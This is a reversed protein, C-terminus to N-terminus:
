ADKGPTENAGHKAETCFFFFFFVDEEEQRSVFKLQPIGGWSLKRHTFSDSLVPSTPPSPWSAKSRQPRTCAPSNQHALFGLPTPMGQVPCFWWAPLFPSFQHGYKAWPGLFPHGDVAELVVLSLQSILLPCRPQVMRHVGASGNM